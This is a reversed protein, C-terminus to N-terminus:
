ATASCLAGAGFSGTATAGFSSGASSNGLTSSGVRSSGLKSMVLTFPLSFCSEERLASSGFSSGSFMCTSLFTSIPCTSTFFYMGFCPSASRRPAEIRVCATANKSSLRCLALSMFEFSRRRDSISQFSLSTCSFAPPAARASM